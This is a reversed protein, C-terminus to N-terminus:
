NLTSSFNQINWESQVMTSNYWSCICSSYLKFQVIFLLKATQLINLLQWLKVSIFLWVKGVQIVRTIIEMVMKRLSHHLLAPPHVICSFKQSFFRTITIKLLDPLISIKLAIRQYFALSNNQREPNYFQNFSVWGAM